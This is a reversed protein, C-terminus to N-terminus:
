LVLYDREEGRLFNYFNGEWTKVGTHTTFVDALVWISGGLETWFESFSADEPKPSRDKIQVPFFNYRVQDPGWNYEIEPHAELIMEFVHRKIKACGLGIHNAKFLVSDNVMIQSNEDIDMDVAYGANEGKKPYAIFIVPEDRSMMKLIGDAHFGVDCDIFLMDTCDSQLFKYALDDRALSLWPFGREVWIEHAIGAKNFADKLKLLSMVCLYQVTGDPYAPVAVYVKQPQKTLGLQVNHPM